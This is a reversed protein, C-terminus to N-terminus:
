FTFTKKWPKNKNNRKNEVATALIKGLYHTTLSGIPPYKDSYGNENVEYHKVELEFGEGENEVSPWEVIFLVVFKHWNLTEKAKKYRLIAWLLDSFSFIILSQKNQILSPACIEESFAELDKPGRTSEPFLLISFKRPDIHYADIM